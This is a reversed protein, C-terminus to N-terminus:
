LDHIAPMFGAMVPHDTVAGGCSSEARRRRKRLLVLQNTWFNSPFAIRRDIRAPSISATMVRGAWAACGTLPATLPVAVAAVPTALPVTCAPRPTARPETVAALPMPRPARQM